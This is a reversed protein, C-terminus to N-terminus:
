GKANLAELAIRASFTCGSPTQETAIRGLAARLRENEALLGPLASVAEAILETNEKTWWPGPTAAELLARLRATVLRKNEEGRRKASANACELAGLLKENEAELTVIRKQAPYLERAVILLEERTCNEIKLLARLRATDTPM